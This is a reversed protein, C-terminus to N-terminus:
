SLGLAVCLQRYFDRRGLTVNHYYTLRFETPSVSHRVARTVCTKGVGPEGELLISERAALAELVQAVIEEKTPPIWLAGDTLDKAFPSQSLGFHSLYVPHTTM